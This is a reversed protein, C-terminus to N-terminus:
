GLSSYVGSISKAEFAASALNPKASPQCASVASWITVKTGPSSNSTSAGPVNTSRAPPAHLKFFPDLLRVREACTVQMELGIRGDDRPNAALQLRDARMTDPAVSSCTARSRSPSCHGCNRSRPEASWESDTPPIRRRTFKKRVTRPIAAAIRSSAGLTLSRRTHLRCLSKRLNTSAVLPRTIMEPGVPDPLDVVSAASM